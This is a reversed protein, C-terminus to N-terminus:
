AQLDKDRLTQLAGEYDFGVLQQVFLAHRQGLRTRLETGLEAALIGARTNSTALLDELERMAIETAVPRVGAGPIAEAPLALIAAIVAALQTECQKFQSSSDVNTTVLNMAAELQAALEALETLGLTASVGKLSHAVRLAAQSDNQRLYEQLRLMDNGHNSAFSRLLSLLKVLNGRTISMGRATDFGPISSLRHSTVSPKDSATAASPSPAQPMQSLWRLLSRYLAEPEVPKAVFDNMGADLCAQRDSEFANATMALIPLDAKGTLARIARTAELGDMVPMQMDMLILDYGQTCVKEYAIRGNEATDVNLGVERLLDLAIERNIPNDETLLIRAGAHARRLSVDAVVDPDRNARPVIGQGRQLRATFWFTSGQGLRSEAGAEGGMMRALHRTIALGLGTGGYRRTTSVDAQTFSEFLWPLTEAPIGIGSDQVEFRLVCENELEDLVTVRLVIGGQDTFKIANGAYNLLAQRLRTPDGRFVGAVGKNEIDVRLGKAQAQEALLSHVHDLEAELSFETEELKLFGAEIKSLDLIDNIIALLHQAAADIKDLRERQGPDLTSQHLLYSLGIIANMPTRIEHSMNALFASKALNAADAQARAETLEATRSSVLEEMHHRHQDLEEGLRKKETIDEQAAVYHTIRGDPQRIPTIVAFEICEEGSKRRNIFEGKWAEGQKLARYLEAYTEPPTRGSQLIRPSHGIVEDRSFGSLRVFTENVYEIRGVTDTIIISESSQEVAMSLKRLMAEKERLPRLDLFSGTYGQVNGAADRIPGVTILLPIVEGRKDLRETEGSWYGQEQVQQLNSQQEALVKDSPALVAIKKGVLDGLSYGFLRTFAANMYTINGERDTLMVSQASQQLADSFFNREDEALKRVTIDRVSGSRGLYRGQEDYLPQCRHGMWRLSGDKCCIRFELEVVDTHSDSALHELYAPRDASVVLDSM